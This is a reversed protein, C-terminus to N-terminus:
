QKMKKYSSCSLGRCDRDYMGEDVRVLAVLGALDVELVAGPWCLILMTLLTAMSPLASRFESPFASPADM